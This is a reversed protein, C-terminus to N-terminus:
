ANQQRVEDVVSSEYVKKCYSEPRIAVMTSLLEGYSSPGQGTEGYGAVTVSHGQRDDPKVLPKDPLCISRVAM